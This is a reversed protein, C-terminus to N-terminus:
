IFVTLGQCEGGGESTVGGEFLLWAFQLCINGIMCDDSEGGGAICLWSSCDVFLPVVNQKLPIYIYVCVCVCMYIYIYM